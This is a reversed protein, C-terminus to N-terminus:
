PLIVTILSWQEFSFGIMQLSFFVNKCPLWQQFCPAPVRWIQQWLSNGPPLPPRYCDSDSCHGTQGAAALKHWHRVIHESVPLGGPISTLPSLCLAHYGTMSDTVIASEKDQLTRTEWLADVTQHKLTPSPSLSTQHHNTFSLQWMWLPM